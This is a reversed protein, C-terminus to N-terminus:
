GTFRQLRQVTEELGLTKCIQIANPGDSKGSLCFRLVHFDHNDLDSLDIDESSKWKQFLSLIKVLSKTFNEKAGIKSDSGDYQQKPYVQKGSDWGELKSYLYKYKEIDSYKRIRGIIIDSMAFLQENSYGGLDKKM